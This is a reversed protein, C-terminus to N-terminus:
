RIYYNPSVYPGEPYKVVPPLNPRGILELGFVVPGTRAFSQKRVNSVSEAAVASPDEGQDVLLEYQYESMLVSASDRFEAYVGIQGEYSGSNLPNSPDIGTVSGSIGLTAGRTGLTGEVEASLKGREGVGRAMYLRNDGESSTIGFTFPGRGATFRSSGETSEHHGYILGMKYTSEVGSSAKFPGGGATARGGHSMFLGADTRGSSLMILVYRDHRRSRERARMYTQSNQQVPGTTVVSGITQVTPSEPCPTPEPCHGTPDSMSVPRNLVYAYRNFAQPNGQRLHLGHEAVCRDLGRATVGAAVVAGDGSVICL